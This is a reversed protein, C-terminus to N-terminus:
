ALRILGAEMLKRLKPGHEKHSMYYRFKSGGGGCEEMIQQMKPDLLISRLEENALISAVQDDMGDNSSPYHEGQRPQQNNPRDTFTSSDYSQREKQTRKPAADKQKTTQQMKKHKRLAKKELPGMERVKEDDATASDTPAQSGGGKKKGNEQGEGLKCFHEGMVGCFEMLWEVIKPDSKKLRELTEKPNTQMDQLAKMYRPNNMGQALKPHNKPLSDLLDPTAWQSSNSQLHSLMASQVEPLQLPNNNETNNTAVSPSPQTKDSSSPIMNGDNDLEYILHSENQKQGADDGKKEESDLKSNGSVRSGNGQRKGAKKKNSSSSNLFGKKMGFTSKKAQRQEKQTKKSQQKQKAETADALMQEALSPLNDNNKDDNTSNHHHAESTSPIENSVSSSGPTETDASHFSIPPPGDDEDDDDDDEEDDHSEIKSKSVLPTIQKKTDSGSNKSSIGLDSEEAQSSVVEILPRSSSPPAATTELLMGKLRDSLKDSAM